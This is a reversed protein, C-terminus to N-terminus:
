ALDRPLFIGDVFGRQGSECLEFVDNAFTGNVFDKEHVWATRASYPDTVLFSRNPKRGKVNTLLMYHAPEDIGIPIDFGQRLAKAVKDLHRWVQGRAFGSEPNTCEYITGTRAGVLGNLVAMFGDNEMGDDVKPYPAGAMYRKLEAQKPFGDYRERMAVLARDAAPTIAVPDNIFKRFAEADHQKIRGHLLLRGVANRLRSRFQAEPVGLAIGEYTELVM